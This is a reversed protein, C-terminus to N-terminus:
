KALGNAKGDSRLGNELSTPGGERRARRHAIEPRAPAYPSADPRPAMEGVATLAALSMGASVAGPSEWGAAGSPEPAQVPRPTLRDRGGPTSATGGRGRRVRQGGGM